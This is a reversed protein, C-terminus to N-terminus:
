VAGKEALKNNIENIHYTFFHKDNFLQKNMVDVESHHIQNLRDKKCCWYKNRCYMEINSCCDSCGNLCNNIITCDLKNCNCGFLSILPLFWCM